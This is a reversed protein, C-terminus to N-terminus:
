KKWLTKARLTVEEPAPPLGPHHSGRRTRRPPLHWGLKECLGKADELPGLKEHGQVSSPRPEWEGSAGPRPLDAASIEVRQNDIVVFIKSPIKV